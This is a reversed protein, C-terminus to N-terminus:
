VARDINQRTCRNTPQAVRMHSPEGKNEVTKTRRAHTWRTTTWIHQTDRKSYVLLIHVEGFLLETLEDVEVANPLKVGERFLRAAIIHSVRSIIRSVAPESVNMLDGPIVQFTGAGYLRLKVSLQLPPPVPRGRDDDCGCLPLTPRLNLAAHKLFRYM